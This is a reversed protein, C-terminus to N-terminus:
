SLGLQARTMKLVSERRLGAQASLAGFLVGYPAGNLLDVFFMAVLLFILVSFAALNRNSLLRALLRAAFILFCSLGFVGFDVFLTLFDNHTAIVKQSNLRTWAYMRGHGFVLFGADDFSVSALIGDWYDLRGSGTGSVVDELRLFEELKFSTTSLASFIAAFGVFVSVFALVVQRKIFKSASAAVVGYATLCILAFLMAVLAGRSATWFLLFLLFFDLSLRRWGSRGPQSKLPTELFSLGGFLAVGIGVALFNPDALGTLRGSAASVLKWGFSLGRSELLAAVGLISVAIRTLNILARFSSQDRFLFWGVSVAIWFRVVHLSWFLQEPVQTGRPTVSLALFVILSLTWLASRAVGIRGRFSDLVINAFVILLIADLVRLNLLTALSLAVVTIAITRVYRNTGVPNARAESATIM